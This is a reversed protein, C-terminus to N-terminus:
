IWSSIRSNISVPFRGWDKVCMEGRKSGIFIALANSEVVSHDGEGSAVASKMVVVRPETPTPKVCDRRGTLQIRELPEPFSLMTTTILGYSAFSSSGMMRLLSLTLSCMYAGRTLDEIREKESRVNEEIGSAGSPGHDAGACM